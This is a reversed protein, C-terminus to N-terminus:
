DDEVDTFCKQWVEEFFANLDDVDGMISISLNDDYLCDYSTSVSFKMGADEAVETIHEIIQKIADPKNMQSM